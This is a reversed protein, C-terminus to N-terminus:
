KTPQIFPVKEIVIGVSSAYLWPKNELSKFNETSGSLIIGSFKATELTSHEETVAVGDEYLSYSVADNNLQYGMQKNAKNLQKIFHNYDSKTLSGNQENANIGLYSSLVTTDFHANTGIWYWNILLNKPIMKQIEQYTYPKDFTIGVEALHNPMDKLSQAENSAPILSDKAHPNFFVPIKNRTAKNRYGVIQQDNSIEVVADTGSDASYTIWDYSGQKQEWPIQYGNVNKYRNSVLTGGLVNSLSIYRSDSHINPSTVDAVLEFQQDLKLYSKKAFFQTLKYSGFVVFLSVIFSILITILWRKRKTKRALTKFQQDLNDTNEM